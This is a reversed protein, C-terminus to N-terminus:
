GEAPGADLVQDAFWNARAAVRGPAPCRGTGRLEAVVSEVFPQHAWEPYGIDFTHVGSGDVLTFPTPVSVAFTLKGRSGVVEMEDVEAGSTYAWIGSGVLGSEFSFSVAITDPSPYIDRLNRARGHVEAIPGLYFDLLDIQHCGAEVWRGGRSVADIYPWFRDPYAQGKEIVPRRYTRISVGLIEGIAGGDLMEKIKVFRPMSRRYFAVWLPVGAAECADVMEMAEPYTRAMPKECLVPKGAAAARLTYDRHSDPPTSIYVADVEPDALLADADDYWRPVGHKEAFERAKAGNRRMVAVLQSHPTLYFAGGSKREAVDGIGIIGWRVTDRVRSGREAAGKGPVAEEPMM